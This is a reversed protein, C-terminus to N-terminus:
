QIQRIVVNTTAGAEAAQIYLTRGVASAPVQFNWSRAGSGDAAGKFALRPAELALDVGLAPVSTSGIGVLSYTVAQLASPTGGTVTATGQQGAVLTSVDVRYPRTAFALGSVTLSGVNDDYYGPLGNFSFSDAFGLFLRTAGPPVHFIQQAGAAQGDGIFFPQRLAPSLEAFDYNSFSLGTPAPDAPEDPGVFVGVLFMQRGTGGISAIGDWAQVGTNYLSGGDAGNMAGNPGCCGVQGTVGGVTFWGADEPVAVEVPLLGPGGGGPDEPAAHGSGYINARGDVTQASLPAAVLLLAAGLAPILPSPAM